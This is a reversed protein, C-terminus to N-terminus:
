LGWGSLNTQRVQMFRKPVFFYDMIGKLKKWKKGLDNGYCDCFYYEGIHKLFYDIMEQATYGYKKFQTDVIEVQVMPKYKRITNRAGQIAIFEYGETDIKIFDVDTLKYKDLRHVEVDVTEYKVDKDEPLINNHGMNNPHIILKQKEEHLGLGVNYPIIEGTMDLSAFKGCEEFWGINGKHTGNLEKNTKINELAINYIPTYPEFSVVKKAWTSYEITNNAINMGIDVITRANPITKRVFKLNRGQYPGATFRQEYFKDGSEIIYERGIKNTIRKTEM